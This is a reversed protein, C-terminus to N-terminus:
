NDKQTEEATLPLMYIIEYECARLFPYVEALLYAYPKGNNYEKLQSKRTSLDQLDLIGLIDAKEEGSLADSNIVAGRLGDWNEGKSRVRFCSSNFGYTIVMYDRLAAARRESLEINHSLEGEPSAYAEIIIREIESASLKLVTEVSSEISELERHNDGYDPYVVYRDVPFLICASGSEYRYQKNVYPKIYVTDTPVISVSIPPSDASATPMPYIEPIESRKVTRGITYSISLGARTLGWYYKKDSAVKYGCTRCGDPNIEGLTHKTYDMHVYGGGIIAELAWRRSLEHRYGLSVGIGALWGQYHYDDIVRATNFGAAHLHLGGFLGRFSADKWYRLEPQFLLVKLKKGDTFTWPNYIVTFDLTLKRNLRFEGSLNLNTLADYLLNTKLVTTTTTTTTTTSVSKMDSIDQAQLPYVIIQICLLIGFMVLLNKHSVKNFM